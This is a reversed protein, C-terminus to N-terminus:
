ASARQLDGGALREYIAVYDRAMRAASFRVEFASRCSTRRLGSVAGVAAVAEDVSEVLFGTVGHEIIEPTSGGRFAVVPTGCALAEIM